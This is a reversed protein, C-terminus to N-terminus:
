TGSPSRAVFISRHVEEVVDVAVILCSSAASAFPRGYSCAGILILGFSVGPSVSYSAAAEARVRKMM